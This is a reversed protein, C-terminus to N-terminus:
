REPQTRSHMPPKNPVQSQSPKAIPKTYDMVTVGTSARGGAQALKDLPTM